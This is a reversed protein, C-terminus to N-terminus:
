CCPRDPTLSFSPKGAPAGGREDTRFGYPHVRCCSFPTAPATAPALLPLLNHHSRAGRCGPRPPRGVWRTSLAGSVSRLREDVRQLHFPTRVIM